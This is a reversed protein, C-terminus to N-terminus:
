SRLFSYQSIMTPWNQCFRERFDKSAIVNAQEVLSPVPRRVTRGKEDTEQEGKQYRLVSDRLDGVKILITTLGTTWGLALGQPLDVTKLESFRSLNM